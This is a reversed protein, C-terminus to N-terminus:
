EDEEERGDAGIAKMIEPLEEALQKWDASQMMIVVTSNRPMWRMQDSAHDYQFKGQKTEIGIVKFKLIKKERTSFTAESDEAKELTMNEPDTAREPHEPTVPKRHHVIVKPEPKKQAEEPLKETREVTAPKEGLAKMLREYKEPDKEKLKMKIYGWNGWPNAAGCGKLYKIPDGGELGIEIAKQKQEDTLLKQGRMDEKREEAPATERVPIEYPYFGKMDQEGLNAFDVKHLDRAAHVIKCDLSCFVKNRYRYPWNAPYTTFIKKGCIACVLM